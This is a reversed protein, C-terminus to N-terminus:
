PTEGGRNFFRLIPSPGYDPLPVDAGLMRGAIIEIAQAVRRDGCNLATQHALLAQYIKKSDPIVGLLPMDLVQALTEPPQMLGRRILKRDARNFVVSPRPEERQSLLQCLREADRLCVDDPTAVIIPEAAAGLINKLGRGIGAPADLLVIDMQDSLETIIRGMHKAKLDSPSMMQPAALLCLGPLNAPRVMAQDLECNKEAVDGLDYIVQDQLGLMLDACRLGTDGDLLAVQKGARAFYEALSASLTSKGVGGKGSMIAFIRGM